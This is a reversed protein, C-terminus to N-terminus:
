IGAVNEPKEGDWWRFLKPSGHARAPVECPPFNSGPDEMALLLFNHIEGDTWDAPIATAFLPRGKYGGKEYHVVLHLLGSPHEDEVFFKAETEYQKCYMTGILQETM